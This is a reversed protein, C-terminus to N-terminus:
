LRMTWTGSPWGTGLPPIPPVVRRVSPLSSHIPPFPRDVRPAACRFGFHVRGAKHAKSQATEGAFWEVVLHDPPRRAQHEELYDGFAQLDRARVFIGNM